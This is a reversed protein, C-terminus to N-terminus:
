VATQNLISWIIIIIRNESVEKVPDSTNQKLSFADHVHRASSVVGTETRAGTVAVFSTRHASALCRRQTARDPVTLV